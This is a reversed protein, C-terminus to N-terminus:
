GIRGTSRRRYMVGSSWRGRLILMASAISVLMVPLYIAFPLPYRETLRM